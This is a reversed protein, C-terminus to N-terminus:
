PASIVWELLLDKYGGFCIRYATMNSMSIGVKWQLWSWILLKKSEGM